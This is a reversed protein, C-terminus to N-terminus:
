TIVGLKIDATFWTAPIPSQKKKEIANNTQLDYEDNMIKVVQQFTKQQWTKVVQGTEMSWLQQKKDGETSNTLIYRKNKLIHFDTIWPLGKVEM